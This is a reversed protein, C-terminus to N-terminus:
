YTDISLSRLRDDLDVEIKPYGSEFHKSLFYGEAPVLGIRELMAGYDEGRVKLAADRPVRLQVEADDGFLSVMVQPQLDGIKLYVRSDAADLILKKLPTTAMSLHMDAGDGRCELTLPVNENFKLSWDDPRDDEVRVIGGLLHFPRSDFAINAAGDIVEYDVDPKSTFRPFTAYVMDETADRIMMAGEGVDVVANIAHVAPDNEKIYNTETAYSSSIGGGSSQWAIFLGGVFLGVSTVYSIFELKSRTFIKEIGIAILLIPSWDILFWFWNSNLMGLNWLMILLGFLILGLGWRFRAPTM